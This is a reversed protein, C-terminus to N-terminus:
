VTAGRGSLGDEKKRPEGQMTEKGLQSGGAQPLQQTLLQILLQPQQLLQQWQQLGPHSPFANVVM